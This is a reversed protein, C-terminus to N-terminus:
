KLELEDDYFCNNKYTRYSSSMEFYDAMTPKTIYSHKSIGICNSPNKGLNIVFANVLQNGDLFTEKTLLILMYNRLTTTAEPYVLKIFVKKKGEKLLPDQLIKRIAEKAM